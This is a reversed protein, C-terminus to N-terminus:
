FTYVLTARSTTDLPEHGTLKRDEYQLDYSFRAKLRGILRTDLSTTSQANTDGSELYVSTDQSLSLTPSIKWRLMLSANGAATTRGGEDVRDTYRAAPGGQLTLKTSANSIVTFGIGTGATFRSDFGLFRDREYQGLGYVFMKDNVKYSPQWSLRYRDATTTGNSRQFDARGKISHIWRLGNRDLGVSGYIAITNTNGTSRSGGLEIEGKWYDLFSAAALADARQRAAEAMKEAQRATMEAELAEIQRVAQPNTKRALKFLATLATQDGAQFAAEALDKISRPLETPPPPLNVFPIPEPIAPLYVIPIPPPPPPLLEPEPLAPAPAQIAAARLMVSLFIVM